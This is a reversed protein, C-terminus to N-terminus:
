AANARNMSQIHERSKPIPYKRGLSDEIWLEAYHIDPDDPTQQHIDSLRLHLEHRENEALRVGGKEYDLFTGSSVGEQDTGGILRLIITRRGQNMLTVMIEDEPDYQSAPIYQSKIKLRSRDRLFGSLSLLFGAVSIAIAVYPIAKQFSM